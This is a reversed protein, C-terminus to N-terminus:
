LSDVSSSVNARKKGPSPLAFPATWDGALKEGSQCINLLGNHVHVAEDGVKLLHCAGKFSTGMAGRATHFVKRTEREKQPSEQPLFTPFGRGHICAEKGARSPYNAQRRRKPSRASASSMPPLADTRHAHQFPDFSRFRGTM